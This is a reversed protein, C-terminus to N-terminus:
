WGLASVSWFLGRRIRGRVTNFLGNRLFHGLPMDTSGYYKIRVLHARDCVTGKSLCRSSLSVLISQHESPSPAVKSFAGLPTGCADSVQDLALGGNAFKKAPSGVVLSAAAPPLALPHSAGHEESQLALPSPGNPVASPLADKLERSSSSRLPPTATPADAPPHLSPFSFDESKASTASELLPVGDSPPTVQEPKTPALSLSQSLVPKPSSPASSLGSGSPPAPSSLVEPGAPVEPPWKHSLPTDPSEEPPFSVNPSVSLIPLPQRRTQRPRTSPGDSTLHAASLPSNQSFSGTLYEGGSSASPSPQIYLPAPRSSRLSALFASTSSTPLTAGEDALFSTELSLHYAAFAAFQTVRKM